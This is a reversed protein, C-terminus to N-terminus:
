LPISPAERQRLHQQCQGDEDDQQRQGHDGDAAVLAIDALRLQIGLRLGDIQRGLVPEGLQLGAAAAVLVALVPGRGQVVDGPVGLLILVGGAGQVVDGGGGFAGVGGGGPADQIPGIKIHM